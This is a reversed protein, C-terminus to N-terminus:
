TFFGAASFCCVRWFSQSRRFSFLGMVRASRSAIHRATSASHLRTIARSFAWLALSPSIRSVCMRARWTSVFSSLTRASIAVSRFRSSIHSESHDVWVPPLYTLSILPPPRHPAIGSCLRLQLPEVHILEVDIAEVLSVRFRLGALFIEVVQLLAERPRMAARQDDAKHRRLLFKRDDVTLVPELCRDRALVDVGHRAQHHAAEVKFLLGLTEDRYVGLANLQVCQRRKM